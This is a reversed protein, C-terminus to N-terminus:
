CWAAPSSPPSPSPGSRPLERPPLRPSTRRLRSCASRPARSTRLVAGGVVYSRGGITLSRRVTGGDFISKLEAQTLVPQGAFTSNQTEFRDDHIIHVAIEVNLAAKLRGFYDNTLGTGVDIVGVVRNNVFVPATAFISLSARGPEIGAQLAGSHIANIIMQRRTAIDDGSVDPTHLRAIAIGAANVFTILQLDVQSKIAPFNRLYRRIIEQRADKAILDATDLTAPWASCSGPQPENRRM